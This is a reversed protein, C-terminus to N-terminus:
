DEVFYQEVLNCRKLVNVRDTTADTTAKEFEPDAKLAMWQQALKEKNYHGYSKIMVALVCDLTTASLPGRLKFPSGHEAGIYEVVDACVKPFLEEFEGVMDDDGKVYKDMISNLFKKLPKEYKELNSYLAFVRLLLEVDKQHKDEQTTSYLKRWDKNHNLSKLLTNFPGAYVANRVEQASLPTGSTNLREFIAFASSRGGDKITPANQRVNIARLITQNSLKRQLEQPLEDFTKNAWPVEPALGTLKFIKQKGNGDEGGFYGKFYYYISLIRQQGDIILSKNDEQEFLFISPVPLGRLFSDILLSAQKITWVYSRQYDPVILDKNEFMNIVVQLTLDSPYSMIDYIIDSIDEDTDEIEFQGNEKLIM